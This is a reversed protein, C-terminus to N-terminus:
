NQLRLGIVGLLVLAISVIRVVNTPEHFFMVGVIAVAAVSTGTWVAYATGIPISKVAIGLCGISALMFFVTVVSPVLRTFGAAFKLGVLWGVECLGGIFLIIWDM